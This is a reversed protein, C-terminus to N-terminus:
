ELAEYAETVAQELTAGQQCTECAALQDFVQKRALLYNQVTDWDATSSATYTDLTGFITNLSTGVSSGVPLVTMPNVGDFYYWDGSTGKRVKAPIRFTAAPM